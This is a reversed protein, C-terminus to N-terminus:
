DAGIYRNKYRMEVSTDASGLICSIVFTNLSNAVIPDSELRFTGLTSDDSIKGLWSVNANDIATKHAYTLDVTVTTGAPIEYGEFSIIDGLDQHEIKLDTAPGTILITPYEEWNGDYTFSLMKQVTTYTIGFSFPFSFSFILNTVSAPTVSFDTVSQVQQAPDYLVPNFATFRLTEVISNQSWGDAGNYRYLPGKSVFCDLDRITGNNFTRRLIGPSPNNMDTRNPRLIGDLLSRMAWQAVRDCGKQYIVMDITRPLLRAETVTQGHQYPGSTVGFDINPIGDGEYLTVFRDPPDHLEFSVGDPTIYEIYEEQLTRFNRVTM